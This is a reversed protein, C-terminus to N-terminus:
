LHERLEETTISAQKLLGNLMGRKLDRTHKPVSVRRGDPHRLIVHSGTMHDEAFHLKSLARLLQKSTITPLRSM